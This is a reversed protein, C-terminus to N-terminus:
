NFENMAREKGELVITEIVAAITKFTKKLTEKEKPSFAGLIFHDVARAGRPKKTKGSPTKPSIGIRIRVFAETKISRAVSEVGRHGGSGRNFSVKFSGIPLDLDDHVVVLMEADKKNKVLPRVSAGSKNMFTEPLLFTTRKKGIEGKLVLANLKKDFEWEPFQFSARLRELAMRGVSHRTEKFKEGPNGLGVITYM